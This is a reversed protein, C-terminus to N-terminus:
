GNLAELVEVLRKCSEETINMGGSDRFVVYRREIDVRTVSYIDILWEGACTFKVDQTVRIFTPQNM